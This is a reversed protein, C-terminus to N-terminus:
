WSDEQDMDFQVLTKIRDICNQQNAAPHTQRSIPDVFQIQGEYIIPIRDYCQNTTHLPSQVLPCHYLWALTGGTGLFMSQTGTLMYGALRPNKLSLMLYYPNTNTGAWMPKKLTTDWVSSTITLEPLPPLGIKNGHANKTWTSICIKMTQKTPCTNRIMQLSNLLDTTRLPHYISYFSLLVM